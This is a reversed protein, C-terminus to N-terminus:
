LRTEGGVYGIRRALALSISGLSRRVGLFGILLNIPMGVFVAILPWALVLVGLAYRGHVFLYISSVIAAPWKLWVVFLCSIDSLRVSVFAYQVFHWIAEICLLAILTPQWPYLVLLVPLVPQSLFIPWSSWELARLQLWREIEADTYTDFPRLM